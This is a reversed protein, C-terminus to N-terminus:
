SAACREAVGAQLVELRAKCSAPERWEGQHEADTRAQAVASPWALAVSSAALRAADADVGCAQAWAGTPAALPHRRGHAPPFHLACAPESSISVRDEHKIIHVSPLDTGPM